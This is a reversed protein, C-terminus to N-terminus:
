LWDFSLVLALPAHNQLARAHGRKPVRRCTTSDWLPSKDGCELVSARGSPSAVGPSPVPGVPLCNGVRYASDGSGADNPQGGRAEPGVGFEFYKLGNLPKELYKLTFYKKAPYILHPHALPFKPHGDPPRGAGRGRSQVANSRATGCANVWNAGSPSRRRHLLGTIM